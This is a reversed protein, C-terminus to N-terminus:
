HMGSRRGQLGIQDFPIPQFGPLRQFVPANTRLQFHGHAADEFGPDETGAWM